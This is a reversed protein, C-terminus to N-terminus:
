WPCAPAQPTPWRFRACGRRRTPTGPICPWGLPPTTWSSRASGGGRPGILEVRGRLAPDDEIRQSWRGIRAGGQDRGAVRLLPLDPHRRWAELALDLGGRRHLGMAVVPGGPNSRRRTARDRDLGCANPLVRVRDRTVGAEVLDSALGAAVTVHLDASSLAAAHRPDSPDPRVHWELVVARWRGGESAAVRPDRCLLTADPDRLGALTRRFLLGAIPPRFRRGPRRIELTPPLPRGLWEQLDGPVGDIIGADGVLVVRPVGAEALGVAQQFAQWGQPRPSPLAARVAVVWLGTM